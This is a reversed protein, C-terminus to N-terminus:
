RTACRCGTRATRRAASCDAATRTSSTAPSTWIVGSAPRGTCSSWRPRSRRTATSATSRGAAAPPGFSADIHDAFRQAIALLRDGGTARSHAVAAQILHGACYLEHGWRLDSFRGEGKGSQFWSNIYGDTQQADAILGVLREVDAALPAYEPDDPELRALQWSAAELWKYVDSDMFPYDGRFAGTATGAALRLDHLNGASELLEPGQPIGVRANVEQRTAWFGAGLVPGATPRLAARAQPGHRVPGIKSPTDSTRAM